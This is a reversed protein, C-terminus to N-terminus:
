GREGSRTVISINATGPQPGAPLGPGYVARRQGADLPVFLEFWDGGIVEERQWGSLRLLADNCYTIRATRDLMVAALEVNQLLGSFRSESDRLAQETLKRETIDKASAPSVPSREPTM